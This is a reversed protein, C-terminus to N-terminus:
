VQICSDSIGDDPIESMASMGINHTNQLMRSFITGASSKFGHAELEFVCVLLCVVHKFRGTEGPEDRM